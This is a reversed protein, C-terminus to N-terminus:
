QQTRALLGHLADAPMPRGLYFGQVYDCGISRLFDLQEATEVGEMLTRVGLQRMMRAISTLVVRTQPRDFHRLFAMDLKAVDFDRWDLENFSSYGSGFDDLWVEYGLERLRKIQSTLREDDNSFASETVELRLMQRPMGVRRVSEEVTRVVNSLTFDIRSFNVSIPVVDLGADLWARWDDCACSLMYADLECVHGSDELLGVFDGPSITGYRKDEWRVLAECGCLRRTGTAYVPQYYAVLDGQAMARKIHDYIYRRRRTARDLEEDYTRLRQVHSHKISDCAIKAADYAHNIDALSAPIDYVGAKLRVSPLRRHREVFLIADTAHADVDARSAIVAFHDEAIRAALAGPFALRIQRATERLLEDGADFGQRENVFKFNALNYYLLAPREGRRELAHVFHMGHSRLCSLDALGTLPDRGVSAPDVGDVERTDADDM